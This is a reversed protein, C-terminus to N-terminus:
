WSVEIRFWPTKREDVLKVEGLKFCHDDVGLAQAIGDRAAKLMAWVNDSDTRAAGRYGADISLTVPKNGIFSGMMGTGPMSLVGAWASAHVSRKAERRAAWGKPTTGQSGNPSLYKRITGDTLEPVSITIATM